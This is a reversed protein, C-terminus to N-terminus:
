QGPCIWQSLPLTVRQSKDHIYHKFSCM